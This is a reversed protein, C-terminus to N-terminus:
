WLISRLSHLFQGFTRAVLEPTSGFKDETIKKWMPIVTTVRVDTDILDFLGLFCLATAQRVAPEEDLFLEILEPLIHEKTSKASYHIL